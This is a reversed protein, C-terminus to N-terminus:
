EHIDGLLQYPLSIEKIKPEDSVTEYYGKILQLGRKYKERGADLLAKSAKFCRCRGDSKSLFVFYFDHEKGDWKQLVDVYLAASLAYDYKAITQSVEWDVLSGSTTKVDVISGDSRLWDTRVKVNVDDLETFFSVEPRGDSILERAEPTNAFEAVLFGGLRQQEATIQIKDKNVAEFEEWAKGARRAGSFVAFDAAVTNPELILAHVYTGFVMAPTTASPTNNLYEFYEKGKFANKIKSSSIHTKDGHYDENTLEHSEYIRM